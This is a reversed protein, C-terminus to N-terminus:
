AKQCWMLYNRVVEGVENDQYFIKDQKYHLSIRKEIDTTPHLINRHWNPLASWEPSFIIDKEPAQLESTKRHIFTFYQGEVLVVECQLLNDNYLIFYTFLINKPAYKIPCHPYIDIEWDGGTIMSLRPNDFAFYVDSPKGKKGGTTVPATYEVAVTLKSEGYRYIDIDGPVMKLINILGMEKFYVCEKNVTNGLMFITVNNRERIITSLCNMFLVFERPIYFDRSIAEDFLITTVGPYSTSKDHEGTALTFAFAFPSEQCVRNGDGDYCCLYFKNGRYFIGTWHGETIKEVEGNNVLAEFMAQGRGNTFDERYRRIIAMQEGTKYYRELGYKLVAYTKGSSREGFIFNYKAKKELIRDLTYYKTKM